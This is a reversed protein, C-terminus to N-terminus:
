VLSVVGAGVSLAEAPLVLGGEAVLLEDAETSGLAVGVILALASGGSGAM